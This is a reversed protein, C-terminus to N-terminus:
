EDDEWRGRGMVDMENPLIIAIFLVKGDSEDV